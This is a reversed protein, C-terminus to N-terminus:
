AGVSRSGAHGGDVEFAEAGHADGALGMSSPHPPQGETRSRWEEPDRPQEVLVEAQPNKAGVRMMWRLTKLWLAADDHAQDRHWPSLGEKAFRQQGERLRLPPPGGDGETRCVSVTRCPPGGLLMVVKGTDILHDIWGSLHACLLNAGHMVDFCLVVTDESEVAKWKGPDGGAFVHIVIKQAKEVQRRRRRNFPLRSADWDEKGIIKELIDDPVQPFLGKLGATTKEEKTEALVGCELVARLRARRQGAKEVEEMLQRGREGIVVPCGQHLRTPLVGYKPHEFRCEEKSWQLRYGVEALKSVPILPQVPTKSLLTGTAEDIRMEVTGSALQVEITKAQSWEKETRAQRLCHTAGGDLLTEDFRGERVSRLSVAKAAPGVRLTKLLSTVEQMLEGAQEGTGSTIAAASQGAGIEEEVEAKAVQPKGSSEEERKQPKKGGGDKGGKKGKGKGKTDGKERFFGGSAKGEGAAGHGGYGSGGTASSLEEKGHPCEAKRHHISSCQFCRNKQDPLEDHSFKCKAGFRCGSDTGWGRCKWTEGGHSQTTGLKMVTPAGEKEKGSQEGALRLQEAEAMLMDYLYGVTTESPQVDIQYTMRFASVRFSAEGNKALLQMMIRDLARVQLSADPLVVQLEKARLVQRRWIRLQDVAESPSTAPCTQTVAALTSAKEAQGGPQYTKLVKLLIAATHLQRTAVLEQKLTDPLAALLLATVRQDLRQQGPSAQEVRPAEMHLRELPSATLWSRYLEMCLEMVRGWWAAAKQSVDGVLPALQALWDGAELAATRSGAEPLKPFTIPVSRLTEEEWEEKGKGDHGEVVPPPPPPAPM